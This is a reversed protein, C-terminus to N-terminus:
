QSDNHGMRWPLHLPRTKHILSSCSLLQPAQALGAPPHTNSAPDQTQKVAQGTWLTEVAKSDMTRRSSEQKSMWFGVGPYSLHKSWKAISTLPIPPKSDPFVGRTKTLTCICCWLDTTNGSSFTLLLVDKRSCIESETKRKSFAEILLWEELVWSPHVSLSLCTAM